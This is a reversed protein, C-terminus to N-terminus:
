CWLRVPVSEWFAFNLNLIFVFHAVSIFSTLAITLCCFTLFSSLLTSFQLHPRPRVGQALSLRSNDWAQVSGFALFCHLMFYLGSAWPALHKSYKNTYKYGVQKWSSCLSIQLSVSLVRYHFYSCSSVFLLSQTMFLWFHCLCICRLM